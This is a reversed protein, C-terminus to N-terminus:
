GFCDEEVSTITTETGGSLDLCLTDSGAGGDYTGARMNIVRDNGGEGNFTGGAWITNVFDPDDGGYFTGSVNEASDGGAGGYFVGGADLDGVSDTGGFGCVVEDGAVKGLHEPGDTGVRTCFVLQGGMAAYSTCAQESTFPTGDPRVKTQWGGKQCAKASPSNGGPGKAQTASVTLLALCAVATVILLRKM